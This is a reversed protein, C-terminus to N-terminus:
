LSLFATSIRILVACPECKTANSSGFAQRALFTARLSLGCCPGGGGGLLTAPQPSWGAM